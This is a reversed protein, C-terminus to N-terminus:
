YRIADIVKVRVAVLAPLLGALAGVAVAALFGVLAAEAPFPVSDELGPAIYGRVWESQVLVVALVVGLVGAIVTAVVSELMVALFVRPATAGFARRIGIERVRQRVTVLAINVLSLAGLFLILGAIALLVIRIPELPDSTGWALYDQRQVDVVWGDGLASGVEARIREMLVDALDLPVWFEYMPLAAAQSPQAIAAYGSSLIYAQYNPGYPDPPLVGVIVATTSQAGYVTVTPNTALGPAGLRQWVADSVVLAPSLRQADRATFWSGEALQIRHMPGYAPSVVTLTVGDTGDAYQIRADSWTVAGAYTIAYREVIQDFVAALTAPDAQKGTEMKYPPSLVLTAPRGGGRELQETQAQTAIAGVGVVGSLAAVAIAVGVLSLLVRARHVRFEAWAEVFAGIM